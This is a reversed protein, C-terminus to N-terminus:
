PMLTQQCPSRDRFAHIPTMFEPHYQVRQALGHMHSELTARFESEPGSFVREWMVQLVEFLRNELMGWTWTVSFSRGARMAAGMVRYVPHATFQSRALVDTRAPLVFTPFLEGPLQSGALYEILELAAKEQHVHKWIALHFRGVFPVGPPVAVAFQDKLAPDVNPYDFLWPGSITLAARGQWFLTDSQGDDLRRAASHLFRGLRFFKEMGDLAEPSDFVAKQDDESLFDAGAAWVWGAPTKDQSPSGGGGSLISGIFYKTIDGTRISNKEVQTMQGIKEELTMCALLMDVRQEVPV